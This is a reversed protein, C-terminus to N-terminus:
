LKTTEELNLTWYKITLRISKPIDYKKANRYWKYTNLAVPSQPILWIAMSDTIQQEPEYYIIRGSNYNWYMNKTLNEEASLWTSSMLVTLVIISRKM